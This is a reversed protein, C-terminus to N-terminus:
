LQCRTYVVFANEPYEKVPMDYTKAQDNIDCVLHGLLERLTESEENQAVSTYWLTFDESSESPLYIHQLLSSNFFMQSPKSTRIVWEPFTFYGNKDTVVTDSHEDGYILSRVVTVNAVPKGKDLLQGQVERSLVFDQRNFFGFMNAFAVTSFFLLFFIFAIILRQNKLMSSLM